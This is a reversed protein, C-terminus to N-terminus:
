RIKIAKSIKFIPGNYGKKFVVVKISENWKKNVSIRTATLLSTQDDHQKVRM